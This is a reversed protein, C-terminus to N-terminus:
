KAMQHGPTVMFPHRHPFWHYQYGYQVCRLGVSLVPPTDGLVYPVIQEGLAPMSARCIENTTTNGNATAFEAPVSAKEIHKKAHAIDSRAVLDVGSGTDM